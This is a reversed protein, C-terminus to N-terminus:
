DEDNILLEYHVFSNGHGTGGPISANKTRVFLELSQASQGTNITNTYSLM